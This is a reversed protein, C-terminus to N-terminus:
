QGHLGSAKIGAETLWYPLFLPSLCLSLTSLSPLSLSLFRSLFLFVSLPLAPTPVLSILRVQQEQPATAFGELLFVSVFVSFSILYQFDGGGLCVKFVCIIGIIVDIVGTCGKYKYLIVEIIIIFAIFIM